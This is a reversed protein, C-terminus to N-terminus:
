SAMEFQYLALCKEYDGVTQIGDLIGILNQDNVVTLNCLLARVFFKQLLGANILLKDVDSLIRSSPAKSLM